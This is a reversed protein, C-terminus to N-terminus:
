KYKTVERYLAEYFIGWVEGKVQTKQKPEDFNHSKPEEQKKNIDTQFLLKQLGTM